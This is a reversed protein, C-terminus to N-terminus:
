YLEILRDPNGLSFSIKAINQNITFVSALIPENSDYNKVRRTYGLLSSLMTVSTNPVNTNEAAIYFLIRDGSTIARDFKFNSMLLHLIPNGEIRVDIRVKSSFIGGKNYKFCVDFQAYGSAVIKEKEWEEYRNVPFTFEQFSFDKFPPWHDFNEM